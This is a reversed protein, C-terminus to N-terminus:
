IAARSGTADATATIYYNTETTTIGTAIASSPTAGATATVTVGGGKFNPTVIPM